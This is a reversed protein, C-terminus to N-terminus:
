SEASRGGSAGRPGGTFQRCSSDTSLPAPRFLHPIHRSLEDRARRFADIRAAADGEIAAPDPLGWHLRLAPGPLVPCVEDACLTVVLDVSALDHADIGKAHRGSATCTSASIPM